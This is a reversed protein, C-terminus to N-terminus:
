LFFITFMIFLIASIILLIFAIGLRKLFTFDKPFLVYRQFLGLLIGLYISEAFLLISWSNQTKEILHVIYRLIIIVTCYYLMLLFVNSNIKTNTSKLINLIKQSKM